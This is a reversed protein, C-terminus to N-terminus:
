QFKHLQINEYLIVPIFANKKSYIFLSPWGQKRLQKVHTLSELLQVYFFM